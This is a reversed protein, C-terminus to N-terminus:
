LHMRATLAFQNFYTELSADEKDTLVSTIFLERALLIEKVRGPQRTAWLRATANLLDIGRYLASRMAPEDGRRKARMARGVESGINGMQEFINLKAWNQENFHNSM